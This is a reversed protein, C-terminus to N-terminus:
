AKGRQEQLKEIILNVEYKLRQTEDVDFGLIQSIKEGFENVAMIYNSDWNM